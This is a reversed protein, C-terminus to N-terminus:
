DLSDGGFDDEIEFYSKKILEKKFDSDNQINKLKKYKILSKVEKNHIQDNTLCTNFDVNGKKNNFYKKDHLEIPTLNDTTEYYIKEIKGKKKEYLLEGKKFHTLMSTYTYLVGIIIFNIHMDQLDKYMNYLKNQEEDDLHKFNKKNSALTRMFFHFSNLIAANNYFTDKVNVHLEGKEIDDKIKKNTIIKELKGTKVKFVFEYLNKGLLLKNIYM